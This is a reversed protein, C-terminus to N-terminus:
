TGENRGCGVRGRQDGVGCDLGDICCEVAEGLFLVCLRLGAGNWSLLLGGSVCVGIGGRSSGVIGGCGVFVGLVVLVNCCAFYMGGKAGESELERGFARLLVLDLFLLLPVGAKVLADGFSVCSRIAVVTKPGGLVPDKLEAVVLGGGNAEEVVILVM